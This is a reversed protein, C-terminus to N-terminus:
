PSRVPRLEVFETYTPAAEGPCNVREWGSGLGRPILLCVGAGKSDEVVWRACVGHAFRRRGVMGSGGRPFEWCLRRARRTHHGHGEGPGPFTRRLMAPPIIRQLEPFEESSIRKTADVHAHIEAGGDPTIVWGDKRKAKRM